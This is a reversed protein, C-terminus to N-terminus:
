NRPKHMKDTFEILEVPAGNHEIMVVKVGESPSSTKSIIHFNFEQLTEELNDVEFAVHPIKKILEPIPCDDEFRMWEIGFPSKEFGAVYMKLHSIYKEGSIPKNVPIGTHHYQWGLKEIVFPPEHDKRLVIDDM